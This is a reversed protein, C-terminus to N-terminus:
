ISEYKDKHYNVVFILRLLRVQSIVKLGIILLNLCDPSM